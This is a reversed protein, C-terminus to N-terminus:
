EYAKEKGKDISSNYRIPTNDAICSGGRLRIGIKITHSNFFRALVVVVFQVAQKNQSAEAKESSIM